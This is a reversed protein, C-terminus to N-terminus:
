LGAETAERAVADARANPVTCDLLGNRQAWAGLQAHSTADSKIMLREFLRYTRRKSKGTIDIVDQCSFGKCLQQLLELEETVLPAGPVPPPLERSRELRPRREITDIRRPLKGGNWPPAKM